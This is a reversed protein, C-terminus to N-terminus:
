PALAQRPKRSVIRQLFLLMPHEILNYCFIAVLCSLVTLVACIALPAIGPLPLLRSMSYLFADILMVHLLYLSYSSDGLFSIARILRPSHAGFEKFVLGAVLLASPLAWMLTSPYRSYGIMLGVAFGMLGALAMLNALWSPVTKGFVLFFGIWAGAVFEMLLPNTAVRLMPATAHLLIGAVISSVFFLTLALLGRMSGWSMLLAFCIYFYVEYSLTWGPGIILGSYEPILLFSGVIQMMILKYGAGLAEYAFLFCLAYLIYIPYIRILRRLLFAQPSFATGTRAFSTYFMVFGSIVFFIHVGSAGFSAFYDFEGSVLTRYSLKLAVNAHFFVVLAAAVFRLFQISHVTKPVFQRNIPSHELGSVKESKGM